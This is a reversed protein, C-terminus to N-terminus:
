GGTNHAAVLRSSPFGQAAGKAEIEAMTAPSLTPTKSYVWLTKHNPSGILAWEYNPGLALVWYKRTFLFFSRIKFEGDDRKKQGSATSNHADTYGQKNSCADVLLHQRPKEGPAILEVPNSVCHRAGKLPYSALEYWTGQLRTQDLKPVATASTRVQASLAPGCILLINLTAGLAVTRGLLKAM